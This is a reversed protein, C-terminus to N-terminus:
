ATGPIRHWFRYQRLDFGIKRVIKRLFLGDQRINAKAPYRIRNGM